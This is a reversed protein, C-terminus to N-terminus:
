IKFSLCFVQSQFSWVISQIASLSPTLTDSTRLKSSDETVTIFPIAEDRYAFPTEEIGAFASKPTTGVASIEEYM